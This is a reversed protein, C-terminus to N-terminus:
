SRTDPIPPLVFRLSSAALKEVLETDARVRHVSGGKDIVGAALEDIVDPTHRARRGSM